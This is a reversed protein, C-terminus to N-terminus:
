VASDKNLTKIFNPSDQFLLPLLSGLIPLMARFGDQTITLYLFLGISGTLLVYKMLVWEHGQRAQERDELQSRSASYEVFSRFHEDYVRLQLKFEILGKGLLSYVGPHEHHIFQDCAVHFLALQEDITLSQWIARYQPQYFHDDIKNEIKDGSDSQSLNKERSSPSNKVSSQKFPYYLRNFKACLYHWRARYACENTDKLNLPFVEPAINTVIHVRLTQNDNESQMRNEHCWAQKFLWELLDLKQRNIKPENSRFDFQDIIITVEKRDEDKIENLQAKIGDKWVTSNDQKLNLYICRTSDPASRTLANINQTKDQGPHGIIMLNPTNAQFLYQEDKKLVDFNNFPPLTILFAKELIFRPLQILAVFFALLMIIYAVVEMRLMKVKEWKKWYLFNMHDHVDSSVKFDVSKFEEDQPDFPYKIDNVGIERLTVNHKYMEIRQGTNIWSLNDLSTDKILGWNGLAEKIPVFPMSIRQYLNDFGSPDDSRNSKKGSGNEEFHWRTTIFLDPYFGMLGHTTQDCGAAKSKDVGSFGKVVCKHGEPLEPLPGSAGKLLPKNVAEFSQQLKLMEYQIMTVMEKEYVVNLLGYAPLVSFVLLSTSIVWKYVHPFTLCRSSFNISFKMIELDDFFAKRGYRLAGFSAVPLFVLSFALLWGPSIREDWFDLRYILLGFIFFLINLICYERYLSQRNRDPWLPIGLHFIWQMVLFLLFVLATWSLFLVSTFVATFLVLSDLMAKDRYIVLSWPVDEFGIVYFFRDDGWYSGEVFGEQNAAILDRILVNDDTEIFFNERLNRRKDSHIMVQLNQNDVVAFGSGPPMVVDKMLSQLEFAIAVVWTESCKNENTNKECDKKNKRKQKDLNRKLPWKKSEMSAVIERKGSGWSIIPELFFRVSAFKFESQSRPKSKPKPKPIPKPLQIKTHWLGSPQELVKSVYERGMLPVASLYIPLRQTGLAIRMNGEQKNMWYVLSHDPFVNDKENEPPSRYLMEFKDLLLCDKRSQSCKKVLFYNKIKEDEIMLKTLVREIEGDVQKKIDQASSKMQEEIIDKRGDWIVLSMFVICLFGVSVSMSFFLSLVHWKTLSDTPRMLGLHFFPVSLVLGALIVVLLILVPTSVSWYETRFRKEAVIGVLYFNEKDDSLQVPHKFIVSTGGDPAQVYFKTAGGALANKKKNDAGETDFRDMWTDDVREIVDCWGGWSYAHDNRQFIVKHDVCTKSEESDASGPPTSKEQFLLVDDFVRASFLQDIYETVDLDATLERSKAQASKKDSSQVPEQDAQGDAGSKLDFKFRLLLKLGDKHWSYKFPESGSSKKIDFGQLEAACLRRFFMEALLRRKKDDMLNSSTILGERVDDISPLHKCIDGKDNLDALTKKLLEVISGGYPKDEISFMWEDPKKDKLPYYDLSLERELHRKSLEFIKNYNKVKNTVEGSWLNLLRFNRQVLYEEKDATIQWFIVGLLLLGVLVGLGIKKSYTPINSDKLAASLLFQFNAKELLM